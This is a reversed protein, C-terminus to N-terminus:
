RRTRKSRPSSPRSSAVSCRTEEQINPAVENRVANLDSEAPILAEKRELPLLREKIEYWVEDDECEPGLELLEMVGVFEFHVPNGDNNSYAFQSTRGRRKAQSLAARASSARLLIIREECLRRKGDVAGVTVRFQFLLKATYRRM